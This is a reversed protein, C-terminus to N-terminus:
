SAAWLMAATLMSAGKTSDNNTDIKPQRRSNFSFLFCPKFSFGLIAADLIVITRGSKDVGQVGGRWHTQPVRTRAFPM